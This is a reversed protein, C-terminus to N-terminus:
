RMLLIDLQRILEQPNDCSVVYNKGNVDTIQVLNDRESAYMKVFCRTSLNYYYGYYGGFGHSAVLPFMYRSVSRSLPKVQKIDAKKIVVINLVCRIQFDDDGVVLSRPVSLVFLALVFLSFFIVWATFYASAFDSLLCVFFILLWVVMITCRRAFTDLIYKYKFNM